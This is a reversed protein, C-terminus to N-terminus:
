YDLNVVGLFTLHQGNVIVGNLNDSIISNIESSKSKIIEQIRTNDIYSVSYGDVSESSINGNIQNNYDGTYKYIANILNFMCIKVENPIEEVNKLRYLTRNDVKKRAEFELLNFPMIDLTGGLSKYEPYTLYQGSFEM